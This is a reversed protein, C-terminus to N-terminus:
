DLFDQKFIIRSAIDAMKINLDRSLARIKQHAEDESCNLKEMLIWKARDVLKRTKLSDRVRSVEAILGQLEDFRDIALKIAPRLDEETIPKVLYTSVGIKSVQEIFTDESYATLIIIPTPRRRMIRKSAKIGDLEPMKIDMIILDPHLEETKKVAEWGNRAVALISHGMKELMNKLSLVIISDDEAMLIKLSDM